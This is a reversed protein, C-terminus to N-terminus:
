LFVGILKYIAMAGLGRLVRIDHQNDEQVQHSQRRGSVRRPDGESELFGPSQVIMVHVTIAYRLEQKM